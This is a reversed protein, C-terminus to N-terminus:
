KQDKHTIEELKKIRRVVENLRFEISHLIWFQFHYVKHQSHIMFVIKISVLLVGIELSLFSPLFKTITEIAFLAVIVCFFVVNIWFDRKAHSQGGARSLLHRVKERQASFENLETEIDSDHDSHAAM